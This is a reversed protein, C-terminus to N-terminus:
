IWAWFSLFIDLCDGFGKNNKSLFRYLWFSFVVFKCGVFCMKGMSSSSRSMEEQAAIFGIVGGALV